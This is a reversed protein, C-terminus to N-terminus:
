DDSPPGGESMDAKLYWRGDVRVFEVPGVPSRATAHDGHIEYETIDSALPMPDEGAEEAGPFSKMFAMLDGILAAQDVGALLTGFDEEASPEEDMMKELGHKALVARYNQTLAEIETAAAEQAAEAEVDVETDEQGFAEAMGEAMEGAMAGGFGAFAVMMTTAVVLGEAMQARSDPDLCAAVDAFDGRETASSMREVVAQPSEGGPEGAAFGPGTLVPIGVLLVSLIERM